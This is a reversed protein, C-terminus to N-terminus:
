GRRMKSISVADEKSFVPVSNSKHLIAVGIMSSGTYPTIVRKSAVNNGDTVRSPIDHHSPRGAPNENNVRLKTEVEAHVETRAFKPIKNWREQMAQYSAMAERDAKTLKKPRSKMM